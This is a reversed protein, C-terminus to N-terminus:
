KFERRRLNHSHLFLASAALVGLSGSLLMSRHSMHGSLFAAAAPATLRAVGNVSFQVATYRSTDPGPSAFSHVGTYFTLVMSGVTAPGRCIRAFLLIPWAPPAVALLLPDIGWLLTVLSYSRWLTTRDFWATFRGGALFASVAPVVHILLTAQVYGFGLDRAFFAPVIASYFLNSFAFLFFILLFRRFSPDTFPSLNLVRSRWSTTEHDAVETVSAEEISGDGRDPLQWFCAFSAVSTLSIFILQLQIMLRIHDGSATLLSASILTASLFVVAAYQRLTGAVHSRRQDPYVIRLISPIAPRICFDFLSTMGLFLLFWGASHTFSMALVAVAAGLGPAVVFPKKRRHAMASGTFIAAFFGISAMALPVQLQRDTAQMAKVAMLPANALVGAYVADLLTFAMHFRFARRSTPPLSPRTFAAVIRNQRSPPTETLTPFGSDPPM